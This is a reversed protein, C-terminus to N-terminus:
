ILSSIYSKKSISVSTEQLEQNLSSEIVLHTSDYASIVTEFLSNFEEVISNNDDPIYDLEIKHIVENSQAEYILGTVKAASHTINVEAVIQLTSEANSSKLTVSKFYIPESAYFPCLSFSQKEHVYHCFSPNLTKNSKVINPESCVHTFSPKNAYQYTDSMVSTMPSTYHKCVPLSSYDEKVNFVYDFRIYFVKEEPNYTSWNPINDANVKPASSFFSKKFYANYIQHFTEGNISSIVQYKNINYYMIHDTHGNSDLVTDWKATNFPLSSDLVFQQEETNGYGDPVSYTFNAPYKNSM